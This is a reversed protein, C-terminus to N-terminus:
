PEVQLHAALALILQDARWSIQAPTQDRNNSEIVQRARTESATGIWWSLDQLSILVPEEGALTLVAVPGTYDGFVGHTFILGLQGPLEGFNYGAYGRLDDVAQREEQRRQAEALERVRVQREEQREQAERALLALAEVTLPHTM